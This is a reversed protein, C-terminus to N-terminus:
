TFYYLYIYICAYIIGFKLLQCFYIHTDRHIHTHTDVQTHRHTHISFAIVIM